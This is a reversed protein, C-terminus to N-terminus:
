VYLMAQTGYQMVQVVRCVTHKYYGGVGIAPPLPQFLSADAAAQDGENTPLEPAAPAVTM